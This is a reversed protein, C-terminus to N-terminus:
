FSYPDTLVLFPKSEFIPQKKKSIIIIESKINKFYREKKIEEIFTGYIANLTAM